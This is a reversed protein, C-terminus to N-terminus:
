EFIAGVDVGVVGALPPAKWVPIGDLTVTWRTLNVLGELREAFFLSSGVREEAGLRLGTLISKGGPSAPVDVRRGEVKVAGARTLLCISWPPGTGCVAATAFWAHANFGGGDARSAGAGTSLEGGLELSAPGLAVSGFVRGLATANPLLGVGLSGGAGLSFAWRAHGGSESTGDDEDDATQVRVPAVPPARVPAVPPAPAEKKDPASPAKPQEPARGDAVEASQEMALLNIQVALAFGMTRVLETCDKTHVPFTQDGAWNGKEDRWELRGELGGDSAAILVLVHKPADATFPDSGLRGVVVAKFDRVGPCTPPTVYEVSM